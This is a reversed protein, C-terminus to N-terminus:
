TGATPQLVQMLLLSHMVLNSLCLMVVVGREKHAKYALLPYVTYVGVSRM